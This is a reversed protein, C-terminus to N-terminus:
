FHSLIHFFHEGSVRLEEIIVVYKVQVCVSGLYVQWWFFQAKQLLFIVEPVHFCALHQKARLDVCSACVLLSVRNDKFQFCSCCCWQTVINKVVYVIEIVLDDPQLTIV